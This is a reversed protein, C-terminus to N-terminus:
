RNNRPILQSACSMENETDIDEDQIAVGRLSEARLSLAEYEINGIGSVRHGTNTKDNRPILGRIVHCDM